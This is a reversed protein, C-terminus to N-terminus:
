EMIADPEDITGFVWLTEWQDEAHEKFKLVRLRVWSEDQKQYVFEPPNGATLRKELKPYNCLEDFKERYEPMVVRQAYLLLAKSFQHGADALCDEFYPPIYISRVTDETLNVFYVGKFKPALFTLFAEADQKKVIMEELQEDLVRMRRLNDQTQYYHRKDTLMKHEAEQLTTEARDNDKQYAIGVSVEYHPSDLLKRLRAFLEEPAAKLAHRCIVVFEDGGIRYVDDKPFVARLANAVAKLMDDGAQHGLHNNIDHLGNADVYICAYFSSKGANISDLAARYSNRNLLGTLVDYNAIKNLKENARASNRLSSIIWFLILGTLLIVTIICIPLIPGQILSSLVATGTMAALGEERFSALLVWGTSPIPEYLVYCLNGQWQYTGIGTNGALGKQELEHISKSEADANEAYLERANYQSRVWDINNMNSVAIDTGEANIIYCEGSNAFRIPQILDCFLYGDKEISLAGVIADDARVPASYCMVYENEENFYPGYVAAEGSLAARIDQRSRVDRQRGDSATTAEPTVYVIRLYGTGAHTEPFQVAAGDKESRGIFDALCVAELRSTELEQEVMDVGQSVMSAVMDLTYDTILKQAMHFIAFYATFLIIAVTLFFALGVRLGLAAWSKKNTIGM